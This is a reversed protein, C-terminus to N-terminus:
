SENEVYIAIEKKFSKGVSKTKETEDYVGIFKRQEESTRLYQNEKKSSCALM